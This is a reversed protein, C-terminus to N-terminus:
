VKWAKTGVGFRGEAQVEDWIFGAASLNERVIPHGTHTILMGGLKLSCYISSFLSKDWVEFCFQPPYLDYLVLDFMEEEFKMDKGAIDGIKLNVQLRDHTLGGAVKRLLSLQPLQPLILHHEDMMKTVNMDREVGVIYVNCTPNVAWISDLVLASLYGVGFGVELITVSGTSVLKEFPIQRIYKHRLESLGYYPHLLMGESTKYSITGDLLLLPKM